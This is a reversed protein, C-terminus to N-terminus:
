KESNMHEYAAVPATTGHEKRWYIFIIIIIV